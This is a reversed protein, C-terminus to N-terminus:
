QVYEYTARQNTGKCQTIISIRKRVVPRASHPGVPVLWDGVRRKFILQHQRQGNRSKYPGGGGGWQTATYNIGM